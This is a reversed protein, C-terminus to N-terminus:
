AGLLKVILLCLVGGAAVIGLTAPWSLLNRESAPPGCDCDSGPVCDQAASKPEALSRTAKEPM